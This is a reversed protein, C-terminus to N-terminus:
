KKNKAKEEEELMILLMEKSTKDKPSLHVSFIGVQGILTLYDVKEGTKEDQFVEKKVIVKLEM